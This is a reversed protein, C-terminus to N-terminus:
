NIFIKRRICRGCEEIWIEIDKYMGLWYFRDCILFLIRDKGFYGMDDYLVEFVILVYEIFLM